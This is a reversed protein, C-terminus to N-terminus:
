APGGHAGSSGDAPQWEPIPPLGFARYRTMGEVIQSRAFGDGYRDAVDRGEHGMMARQLEEPIGSNRCNDKFLHRFSHFVVKRDVVGCDARLYSSFWQGWKHARRGSAHLTLAPFLQAEGRERLDTVYRLLGLRQLDPHVPTHRESDATKLERKTEADSLFRFFWAEGAAGDGNLFPLKVVDDVTLHAIEELRAGTHLAILPMWFSAEGRGQPPREGSQHVPGLFLKNLAEGDFPRRKREKSVVIRIGDAARVGVLDNEYGYNILTKLRSLKTKLNAPTTRLEVLHDKFRRVDAKTVREAPAGELFDTFQRAVSLHASRTKARPQREAAWKEVLTEWSTSTLSRLQNEGESSPVLTRRAISLGMAGEGTLFARLGNRKGEIVRIDDTAPIEGELMAQLLRLAEACESRFNPLTGNQSARLQRERLRDLDLVAIVTPSIEALPKEADDAASGKRSRLQAFQEDLRSWEIPLLRRAERPDATGLAIIIERRRYDAVLDLPVRRRLSYRAGRRILGTPM